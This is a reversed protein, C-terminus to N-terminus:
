DAGVEFSCCCLDLLSSTSSVVCVTSIEIEVYLMIPSMLMQRKGRQIRIHWRSLNTNDTPPAVLRFMTVHLHNEESVSVVTTITINRVLDTWDSCVVMKATDM